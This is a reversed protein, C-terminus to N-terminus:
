VIKPPHWTDPLFDSITTESATTFKQNSYIFSASINQSQTPLAFCNCCVMFPNCANNNCCDKNKQVPKQNESCCSKKCHETIISTPIMSLAPAATLFLIHISLLISLVKM